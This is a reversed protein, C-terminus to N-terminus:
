VPCFHYTCICRIEYLGVSDRNKYQVRRFLVVPSILVIVGLNPRRIQSVKNIVSSGTIRGNLEVAHLEFGEM